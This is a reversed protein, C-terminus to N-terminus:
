EVITFPVSAQGIKHSLQDTITLRLQYEGPYIATPLTVGYQMHFDCRQNQCVDEVEPFQSGDVRQGAADLVEYSTALTTRYGENTSDSRFNEVETYLTVPDGPRFENLERREYVGYGDVSEVFSLNRVQLTALEALKSRAQDLFILSGAARKKDDPQQRNDLFSSMAFLQKAWYDQLAPTAGPIPQMSDSQRGALLYLMRLRMHQHVEDTNGPHPTVSNELRSIALSLEDHWQPNSTPAPTGYSVPRVASDTTTAVVPTSVQQTPPPPLPQTLQASAQAIVSQLDSVVIRSLDPAVEARPQFAPSSSVGVAQTKAAMPPSNGIVTPKAVPESEREALQRSYAFASKFQQVMLPWHEPKASRLDNTLKERALPDIEGVAQLEDFVDALAQQETKPASLEPVNAVETDAETFPNQRTEMQGHASGPWPVSCGGSAVLACAALAIPAFLNRQILFPEIM